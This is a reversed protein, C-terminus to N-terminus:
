YYLSLIWVLLIVIAFCIAISIVVNYEIASARNHTNDDTTLKNGCEPCFSTKNVTKHCSSCVITEEVPKPTYREGCETCFKANEILPAGCKSCKIKSLPKQKFPYYLLFWNIGMCLFDFFGARVSFDEDNYYGAILYYLCFTAFSCIWFVWGVWTAKWKSELPKGNRVAFRYILVPVCYVLLSILM